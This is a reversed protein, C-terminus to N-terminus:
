KFMELLERLTMEEGSVSYDKKKRDLESFKSLNGKSYLLYNKQLPTLRSAEALPVNLYYVSYALERGNYDSLIEKVVSMSQRTSDFIFEAIEHVEQMEQVLYFGNPKPDVGISFDPFQFEPEQFDKMSYYVVWYNIDNTFKILDNYAKPTVNELSVEVDGKIIALRYKVVFPVVTTNDCDDLAKYFCQDLEFSSLPRLPLPQRGRNYPYYLVEKTGLTIHKLVELKEKEDLKTETKIVM